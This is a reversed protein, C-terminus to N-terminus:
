QYNVFTMTPMLAEQAAKLFDAQTPKTVWTMKELTDWSQYWFM